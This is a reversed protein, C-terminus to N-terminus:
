IRYRRYLEHRTPCNCVISSHGMRTRYLCAHNKVKSLICGNKEIYISIPCVNRTADELCEFSFPCKKTQELTHTSIHLPM